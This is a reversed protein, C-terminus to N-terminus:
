QVRQILTFVVPSPTVQVLEDLRYTTFSTSLGLCVARPGLNKVATGMLFKSSDFAM